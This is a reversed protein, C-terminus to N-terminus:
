RRSGYERMFRWHHRVNGSRQADVEFAKRLLDLTEETSRVRLKRTSRARIASDLVARLADLDIDTSSESRVVERLADYQGETLEVFGDEQPM